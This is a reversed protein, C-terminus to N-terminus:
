HKVHFKHKDKWQKIKNHDGSLLVEPVKMGKFDSPRTFQPYELYEENTEESLSEANIVGPLLRVVSDVIVMSALEGGSLVYDGISISEDVLNEHVRFDIGEYHGCIILIESESALQKSKSYNLRTGKASTAIVHSNPGKIESLANYIPEIMYLMGAGGSFPTDDIQKYTGIGWKRLDFVEIDVLSKDIARKIISFDKISTVFSPFATLIKIKV